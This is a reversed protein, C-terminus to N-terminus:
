YKSYSDFANKINLFQDSLYIASFIYVFKNDFLSFFAGHRRDSADRGQSDICNGSHFPLLFCPLNTLESCVHATTLAHLWVYPRSYVFSKKTINLEILISRFVIGHAVTLFYSVTEFLNNNNLYCNLTPTLLTLPRFRLLYILYISILSPYLIFIESRM